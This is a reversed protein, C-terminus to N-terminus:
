EVYVIVRKVKYHKILAMCEACPSGNGVRGSRTKTMLTYLTTGKARQGANLLASAEAHIQYSNYGHALISKGKALIASHRYRPHNSKEALGLLLSRFKM